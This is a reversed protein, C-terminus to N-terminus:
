PKKEAGFVERLVRGILKEWDRESMHAVTIDDVVKGLTYAQIFVAGTRPEFDQNVFGKQQALEFAEALSHTLKEQIEGLSKRFRDHRESRALM